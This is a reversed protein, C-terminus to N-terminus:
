LNICPGCFCINTNKDPFKYKPRSFDHFFWPVKKRLNKHSGQYTKSCVTSHNTFHSTQVSRNRWGSSFLMGAWPFSIRKYDCASAGIPILHSNIRSIIRYLLNFIWLPNNRIFAAFAFLLEPPFSYSHVGGGRERQVCVCVCVCVCMYIYVDPCTVRLAVRKSVHILKLGLLSWYNCGNYLAPHFWKDM